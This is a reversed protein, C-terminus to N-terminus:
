IMEKIQLFVLLFILFIIFEPLLNDLIEFM